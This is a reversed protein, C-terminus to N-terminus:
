LVLQAAVSHGATQCTLVGRRFRRGSGGPAHEDLALELLARLETSTAPALTPFTATETESAKASTRELQIVAPDSDAARKASAAVLKRMQAGRLPPKSYRRTRLAWAGALQPRALIVGATQLAPEGAAAIAAVFARADKPSPLSVRYLPVLEVPEPFGLSPFPM